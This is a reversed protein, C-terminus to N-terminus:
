FYRVSTDGRDRDLKIAVEKRDSSSDTAISDIMGIVIQRRISFRMAM